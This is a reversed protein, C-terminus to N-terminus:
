TGQMLAVLYINRFRECLDFAQNQEQKSSKAKWYLNTCIVAEQVDPTYFFFLRAAGGRMEYIDGHRQGRKVHNENRVREQKAVLRMVKIIKKYDEIHDQKLKLLENLALSKGNIELVRVRHCIEWEAKVDIISLLRCRM